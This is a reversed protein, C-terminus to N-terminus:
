QPCLPRAGLDPCIQPHDGDAHLLAPAPNQVQSPSSGAIHVSQPRPDPSCGWLSIQTNLKTVVQIQAPLTGQCGSPGVTGQTCWTWCQRHLFHNDWEARHLTAAGGASPAPKPAAVYSPCLAILFDM